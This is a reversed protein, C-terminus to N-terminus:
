TVLRSSLVTDSVTNQAKMNEKIETAASIFNYDFEACHVNQKRESSTQKNPKPESQKQSQLKTINRGKGKREGFSGMSGEGSEKM